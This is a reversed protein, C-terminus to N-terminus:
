SAQEGPLPVRPPHGSRMGKEPRQAAAGGPFGQGGTDRGTIRFVNLLTRPTGKNPLGTRVRNTGRYGPGSPSGSLAHHCRTSPYRFRWSHTCTSVPPRYYTHVVPPYPLVIDVLLGGDPANAATVTRRAAARGARHHGPRHGDRRDTPRPCRSGPLVPSVIAALPRGGPRRPRPRPYPHDRCRRFGGLRRSVSIDVQTNEATYRVANRVVNEIGRRLM